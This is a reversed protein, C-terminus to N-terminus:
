IGPLDSEILKSWHIAFKFKRVHFLKTRDGSATYALFFGTSAFMRSRSCLTLVQCTKMYFVNKSQQWVELLPGSWLVVNEIGQYEFGVRLFHEETTPTVCISDPNCRRITSCRAPETLNTLIPVPDICRGVEPEDASTSFCASDHKRISQSM